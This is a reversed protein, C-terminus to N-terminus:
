SSRFRHSGLQICEQRLMTNENPEDTETNTTIFRRNSPPAPAQTFQNCIQSSQGKILWSGLQWLLAKGDPRSADRANPHTGQLSLKQVIRQVIWPQQCELVPCCPM